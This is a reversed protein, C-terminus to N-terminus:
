RLHHLQAVPLLRSNQRYLRSYQSCIFLVAMVAVIDNSSTSVHTAAAVEPEFVLSSVTPSIANESPEELLQSVPISVNAALEHSRSPVDLSTFPPLDPLIAPSSNAPYTSVNSSCLAAIRTTERTSPHVSSSSVATENSALQGLDTEVKRRERNAAIITSASVNTQAAKIRAAHVLIDAVSSLVCLFNYAPGPPM